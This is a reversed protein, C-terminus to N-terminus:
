ATPGTQWLPQAGREVRAIWQAADARGLGVLRSGFHPDFFLYSLLEGRSPDTDVDLAQGMMAVNHRRDWVSGYHEAFVEHAAQGIAQNGPHIFIYPIERYVKARPRAPPAPPVVIEGSGATRVIENIDSVTHLDNVLPDILLGQILQKAGDIVVPREEEGPGIDGLRPSHLAIVILHTAGLDIAPKIPTNLRTGGDVYWGRADRPEDVRVPPFLIPIAASARVHHEDLRTPVYDIAHSRHTVREHHGEVFVVTRGTRAATAVTGVVGVVDQEVNRHLDDWDIWHDLNREFPKPDLLSPLRVGPLSMIEGLYRVATLPAQRLLIPRIITNKQVQRWRDIGGTAEEAAPLHAAAAQYTANVAGVSTGIYISPREGRADLAPGLVSMVGAEYAGRAGGGSLVLGIREKKAVTM